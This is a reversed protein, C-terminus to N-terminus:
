GLLLSREDFPWDILYCSAPPSNTSIRTCSANGPRALSRPLVDTDDAVSVQFDGAESAAVVTMATLEVVCHRGLLNRWSSLM